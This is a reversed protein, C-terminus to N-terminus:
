VGKVQKTQQINVTLVTVCQIHVQLVTIWYFQLYCCTKNESLEHTTSTVSQTIIFSSVIFLVIDKETQM